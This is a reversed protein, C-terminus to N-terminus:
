FLKSCSHLNSYSGRFSIVSPWKPSLSLFFIRSSVATVLLLPVQNVCHTPILPNHINLVIAMVWFPRHKLQWSVLLSHFVKWPHSCILVIYEPAERTTCHNPIQRGICPVRTRTRTWSSGVHWGYAAVLAWHLWFYYFFVFFLFFGM